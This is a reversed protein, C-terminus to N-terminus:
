RSNLFPGTFLLIGNSASDTALVFLKQMERQSVGGLAWQM